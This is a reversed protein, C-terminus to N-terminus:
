SRPLTLGHDLFCWWWVWCTESWDTPACSSLKSLTTLRTLNFTEQDKWYSTSVVPYCCIGCRMIPFCLSQSRLFRHIPMDLWGPFQHSCLFLPLTHSSLTSRATVQRLAGDIREGPFPYDASDKPATRVSAEHVIVRPRGM